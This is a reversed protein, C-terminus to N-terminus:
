RSGKAHPATCGVSRSGFQVHAERLLHSSLAADCIDEAAAKAGSRGLHSAAISAVGNDVVVDRIRPYWDEYLFRRALYTRLVPGTAQESTSHTGMRDPDPVPPVEPVPVPIGSGSTEPAPAGMAGEIKMARPDPEVPALRRPEVAISYNRELEEILAHREVPPEAPPSGACGAAVILALGSAATLLLRWVM